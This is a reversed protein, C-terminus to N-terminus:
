TRPPPSAASGCRGTPTGACSRRSITSTSAATPTRSSRSWTPSRSAGRFSTRTTSTPASSSSRGGSRPSRAGRAPARGRAGVPHAPRAGARAQRDRGDRGLRLLPRRGRGLRRRRPPRHAARGRAAADDAPRDRVVGHAHERVAAAGRRPHLGRRVHARPGVRHLRRVRPPAPRVPRRAGRGRRDGLRPDARDAARPDSRAVEDAPRPWDAGIRVRRADTAHLAAILARNVAQLLALGGHSGATSGTASSTATSSSCSRRSSRSAPRRGRGATSSRCSASCAARASADRPPPPPRRARAHGRGRRPPRRVGLPRDRGRRLGDRRADLRWTRASRVLEDLEQEDFGRFAALTRLFPLEDLAPAGPTRRRAPRRRQPAIGDGAARVRARRAPAVAPAARRRRAPRRRLPAARLRPDRPLLGGGARAGHATASHTTPGNLALEGLTEGARVVAAVPEGVGASGSGLVLLREVPAGARFLTEMGAASFPRLLSALARAQEEDLDGFLRSARAAALAGAAAEM